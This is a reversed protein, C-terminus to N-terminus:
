EKILDETNNRHFLKVKVYLTFSGYFVVQHAEKVLEIWIAVKNQLCQGYPRPERISFISVM